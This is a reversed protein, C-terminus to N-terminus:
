KFIDYRIAKNRTCLYPSFVPNGFLVVFFSWALHKFSKHQTPWSQQGRSKYRSYVFLCRRLSSTRTASDPHSSEFWRGCAGWVRVSVLQAVGRNMSAAIRNNGFQSHLTVAVKTINCSLHAKKKSFLPNKRSNKYSSIASKRILPRASLVTPRQRLFTRCRRTSAHAM